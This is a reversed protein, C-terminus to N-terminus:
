ILTIHRQRQIIISWRCNQSIPQLSYNIDTNREEMLKSYSSWEYIANLHINTFGKEFKWTEGIHLM